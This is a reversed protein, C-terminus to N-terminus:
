KAAEEVLDAAALPMHRSIEIGQPCRKECIRCKVCNDPKEADTLTSAYFIRARHRVAPDDAMHFENYYDFVKPIPIGKPCPLCYGCATCNVKLHDTFWQRVQDLAKAEREGFDPPSGAIRLNEEVQEMTSMGSLVIDVEPQNWLWRLAWDALSWDPRTQRLMDRMEDPLRNILFGGRLPEMIAVAAGKKKALDIGRRGAQYNVDLYNYQLQVVPWDYSDMIEEFLRYQDHFSFGVTRARGDKVVKDLFSFIDLAKMRPWSTANFNHALYVDFHDTGLRELQEDLLRDMDDRTQVNWLPLKTVLQVKDRYGGQLAERVFPESEGAQPFNNGHYPYATDVYNLGADIAKHLMATAEPKNIKGADGDIVPLRMCGFGLPTVSLGTKGFKRLSLTM